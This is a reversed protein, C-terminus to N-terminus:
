TSDAVKRMCCNRYISVNGVGILCVECPFEGALPGPWDAIVILHYAYLTRWPFELASNVNCPRWCISFLLPSLVSGHHVGVEVKFEFM